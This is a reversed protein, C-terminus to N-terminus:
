VAAPALGFLEIALAALRFGLALSYFVLLALAHGGFGRLTLPVLGCPTVGVGFAPALFFSGGRGGGGVSVITKGLEAGIVIPERLEAGVV